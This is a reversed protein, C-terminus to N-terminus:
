KIMDLCLGRAYMYADQKDTAKDYAYIVARGKQAYLLAAKRDNSAFATQASDTLKGAYAEDARRYAPTQLRDYVEAADQGWQKCIAAKKPTDGDNGAFAINLFSLALTTATLQTIVIRQRKHM